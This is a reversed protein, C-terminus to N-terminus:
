NVLDTSCIRMISVHLKVPFPGQRSLPPGGELALYLVLGGGFVFWVSVNERAGTNSMAHDLLSFLLTQWCMEYNPARASECKNLLLDEM